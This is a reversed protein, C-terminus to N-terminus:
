KVEWKGNRYVEDGNEVSWRESGEYNHNFDIIDAYGKTGPLPPWLYTRGSALRFWRLRSRRLQQGTKRFRYRLSEKLRGQKSPWVCRKFKVKCALPAEVIYSHM